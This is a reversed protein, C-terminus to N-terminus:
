FKKRQGGGGLHYHLVDLITPATAITVLPARAATTGGVRGSRSEGENDPSVEFSKRKKGKLLYTLLDVRIDPDIAVRWRVVEVHQGAEM